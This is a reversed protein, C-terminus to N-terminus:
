LVIQNQSAAFRTTSNFLGLHAGASNPPIPFHVPALFFAFGDGLKTSSNLTDVIFTFNTTFDALSGKISDWLHLAEDYTARGVLFHESITNLEIVGTSSINAAGEYTINNTSTFDSQRLHFSLPHVAFPLFLNIFIFLTVCCNALRCLSM